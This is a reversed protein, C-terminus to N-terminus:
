SMLFNVFRDGDIGDDAKSSAVKSFSMEPAQMALAQKLVTLNRGSDQLASIKDRRSLGAEGLGRNDMMDVVEGALEASAIKEKLGAIEKHLNDREEALARITAPVAELTRRVAEKTLM